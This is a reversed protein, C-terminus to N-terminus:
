IKMHKLIFEEEKQLVQYRTNAHKKMYKYPHIFFYIYARKKGPYMRMARGPLQITKIESAGGGADVIADIAPISTGEDILTSVLIEIKGSAFDDFVKQTGLKKKNKGHLFVVNYECNLDKFAKLINDGHKTQSVSVLVKRKKDANAIAILAVMKNYDSNETICEKYVTQYQAKCSSSDPFKKSLKDEYEVFTIQPQCVIKKRILESAGIKYIVQGFVAELLIDSGDSRYPTASLGIKRECKAMAKILKQYTDSAFHHVEDGILFRCEALLNKVSEIQEQTYSLSEDKEDESELNMGLVSFLTGITAINIKQVDIKGDGIWGIPEDFYQTFDKYTQELLTIRNVVFLFPYEGIEQCAKVSLKTKGASTAASILGLKNEKMAQMAQKQHEWLNLEEKFSIFEKESNEKYDKIIKFPVKNENLLTVVKSLLGTPFSNDKSLVCINSDKMWSPIYGRRKKYMARQISLTKNEYSLAKRLKTHITANFGTILCSVIGELITVM